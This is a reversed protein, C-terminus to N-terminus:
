VGASEKRLGSYRIAVMTQDDKRPQGQTHHEIAAQIDKILSEPQGTSRSLTAVLRDIGFMERDPSMAETVGDTYLLLTDGTHLTVSASTIDYPDQIGLPLTGCDNLVRISGDRSNLFLPPNHGARAFTLQTQGQEVESPNYVALFATVFTATLAAATLQTNAYHLVVAPDSGPGKYAHLIGHLMAMVTAAAAGHGSVDAIFAGRADDHFRFFDYYDGGAQDSTLYSTAIEVGPFHPLAPPLLTRQIRAIEDFEHRLAANLKRVEEMLTLRTNTGGTLNAVLLSQELHEENFGAPDKRFALNWYLPQGQDYLPLVIASGLHAISNGLVPDDRVNLNHAMLPKKQKIFEGLIGGRVVPLPERHDGWPDAEDLTIRGSRIAAIDIERTVRYHGEPLGKTSMSIMYDSPRLHWYHESIATLMDRPSQALSIQSVLQVMRAIRPNQVCDFLHLPWTYSGTRLRIKRGSPPALPPSRAGAYEVDEMWRKMRAIRTRKGREQGHEDADMRPWIKERSWVGDAFDHDVGFDGKCGAFKWPMM